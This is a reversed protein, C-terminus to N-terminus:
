NVEHVTEKHMILSDKSTTKFDCEDCKVIKRMNTIKETEIRNQEM